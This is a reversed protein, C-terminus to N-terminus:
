KEAPQLNKSRNIEHYKLHLPDETQYPDLTQVIIIAEPSTMGVFRKLLWKARRKNAFLGFNNGQMIITDFIGLAHSISSISMVVATKLGRAKCVEIALPSLDIGTVDYGESQLYLSHRGAGCGIDLVSNGRTHSLAEKLSDPWDPYEQFYIAPGAGASIFGDSREVIEVGEGTQYYAMIMQGYADGLEM